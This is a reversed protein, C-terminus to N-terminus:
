LFISDPLGKNIEYSSYTIEVKGKKEKVQKVDRGTGNDYDITVGKPLKYDRTNFTLEVKDPLGWTSYKKYWMLLEYTGNERTSIVSKLVLGKAEDIYLTARTINEADDLPFIKVVSCETGNIKEKGSGVAEFNKLGLVNNLNVNVTGKPIFSVGKENRIKLKDPTKYYVKVSALPAKIFLVNTKLTAAAKYDTVQDYLAKARALIQRADQATAPFGAGLFLIITLIKKM